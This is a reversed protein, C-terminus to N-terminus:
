AGGVIAGDEIRFTKATDGEWGDFTHGDFFAQGKPAATWSRSPGRPRNSTPGAQHVQQMAAAVARPENRM